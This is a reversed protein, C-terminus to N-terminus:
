RPTRNQLGAIGTCRFCQYLDERSGMFLSLFPSETFWCGCEVRREPNAGWCSRLGWLAKAGGRAPGSDGALNKDVIERSRFCSSRALGDTVEECSGSTHRKKTNGRAFELPSGYNALEPPSWASEPSARATSRGPSFGGLPLTSQSPVRM